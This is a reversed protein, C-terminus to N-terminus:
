CPHRSRSRGSALRQPVIWSSDRNPMSASEAFAVTDLRVGASLAEHLLHAGDLLVEGDPHNARALERFRKVIANQRSSIRDM